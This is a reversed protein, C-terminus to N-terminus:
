DGAKPMFELGYHQYHHRLQDHTPGQPALDKPKGDGGLGWNEGYKAKLQELTPKPKEEHTLRKQDAPSKGWNQFRAVRKLWHAREDCAAKVEFPSPMWKSSGPLGTRPDCVFRVVDM